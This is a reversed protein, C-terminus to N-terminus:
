LAESFPAEHPVEPILSSDPYLYEDFDATKPVEPQLNCTEPIIQIPKQLVIEDDSEAFVLSSSLSLLVIALFYRITKM